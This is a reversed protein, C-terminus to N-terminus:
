SQDAPILRYGALSDFVAESDNLATELRGLAAKSRREPQALLCLRETGVPLFDMELSRATAELGLAVDATDGLVRRPPSEHARHTADYGEIADTLSGVTVARSEALTEIAEELSRRLGATRPRNAFRLSREVLDVIGAVGEPNGQPVLLGWRREWSGLLDAEVDGAYSEVTLAVDPVGNRLRRVGERSGLALYRPSDIRDLLRSFAPDDEGIGFVPPPRIGPSFLRVTVQQGRDLREIEPPMEVIGDAEVLSTTAGSGKDVPYVLPRETSPQTHEQTPTDGTEDPEGREVLGVPMLRLRGESYREDVAMEGILTASEPPPREAAKRIAPAVFSRFITLASVPYGPLGVYGSEAIRGVLMPKGPKVAVGHLLLEGAEEVVRYIVDVASASTSGSSLLLDCETAAERLVREMAEYDDGVHEYLRPEGGAEAVAAAITHSNVDYIEGKASALPEGPRVLEEGTSIIGVTPRGVVSVSEVGLASLLGIERASLRTGPGLAREGAAIDTGAAMIRDGPAVSTRVLIEGDDRDTREVMVVADAGTPVVAGTSIEICEGTELAVTPSEGAHVEGALELRAPSSEDAGFTDRAAVAYGDVTARDFGPVDLTADIRDTLTRGSAEPVRVEEPAARMSLSAIADHAAEPQALTRFQKRDSM